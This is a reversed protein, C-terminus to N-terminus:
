VIGGVVSTGSSTVALASYALWNQNDNSSYVRFTVNSNGAAMLKFQAQLNLTMGRTCSFAADTFTNTSAAAITCNTGNAGNASTSPSQLGAQLTVTALALMTIGALILKFATKFTTTFKSRIRDKM